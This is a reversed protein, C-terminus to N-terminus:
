IKILIGLAGEHEAKIVSRKDTLEGKKTFYQVRYTQSETM